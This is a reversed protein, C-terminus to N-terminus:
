KHKSRKKEWRSKAKKKKGGEKSGTTKEGKLNARRWLDREPAWSCNQVRLFAPRDSSLPGRGNGGCGGGYM